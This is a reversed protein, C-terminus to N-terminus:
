INSHPVRPKYEKDLKWSVMKALLYASSFCSLIWVVVLAINRWVESEVFAFLIGTSIFLLITAIIVSVLTGVTWFIGDVSYESRCKRCTLTFFRPPIM